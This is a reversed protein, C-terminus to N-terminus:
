KKYFRYVSKELNGEYFSYSVKLQGSTYIEASFEFVEKGEIFKFSNEVSNEENGPSVGSPYYGATNSFLIYGKEVTIFFNLDEYLRYINGHATLKWKDAFERFITDFNGKFYMSSYEANKFLIVYESEEM